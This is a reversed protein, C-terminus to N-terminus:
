QAKAAKLRRQLHALGERILGHALTNSVGLRAAVERIKMDDLRHLKVAVRSREPLEDLAAKVIALRERHLLEAEPSPRGDPRTEADMDLQPLLFRDEAIQRRRGDVALNRVIRFLYGLPEDLFRQAAARDFRLWAEQVVDEGRTRNGTIGSAYDVLEARHAMFLDLRTKDDRLPAIWRAAGAAVASGAPM